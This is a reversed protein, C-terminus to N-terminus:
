ELTKLKVNRIKMTLDKVREPTEDHRKSGHLKMQETAYSVCFQLSTLRALNM